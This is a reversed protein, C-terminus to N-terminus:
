KASLINDFKSKFKEIVDWVIKNETNECSSLLKMYRKNEEKLETLKYRLAKIYEIKKNLKQSKKYDNLKEQSNKSTKKEKPLSKTFVFVKGQYNSRPSPNRTTSTVKTTPTYPLTDVLKKNYIKEIDFQGVSLKQGAFPSIRASLSRILSYNQDLYKKTIKKRQM